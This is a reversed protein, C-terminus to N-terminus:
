TPVAEPSLAESSLAEPLLAETVAALTLTASAEGSRPDRVTSLSQVRLLVLAHGTLSLPADALLDGIRAAAEVASRTSGPKGVVVLALEHLHRSAGDVPDARVTTDGFLAYVPSAGRPPEDHLRFRGGTLGALTADAALRALIAGRLALLPGTSVATMTPATMTPASTTAASM